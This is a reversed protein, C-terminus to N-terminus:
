RLYTESERGVNPIEFVNPFKNYARNNQGKNYLMVNNRYKLLWTADENYFSAVIEFGKQTNQPSIDVNSDNNEQLFTWQYVKTCYTQLACNIEGVFPGSKIEYVSVKNKRLKVIKLITQLYIKLLRLGIEKKEADIQFCFIAHIDPSIYQHKADLFAQFTEYVVTDTETPFSEKVFTEQDKGCFIM